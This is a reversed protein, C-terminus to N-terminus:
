ELKSIEEIGREVPIALLTETRVYGRSCMAFLRQLVVEPNPGEAIYIFDYRGFTFYTERGVIGHEKGKKVALEMQKQFDKINEIGKQTFNGLTVFHPMRKIREM